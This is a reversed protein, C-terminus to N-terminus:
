SALVLCANSTCPILVPLAQVMCLTHPPSFSQGPKKRPATNQSMTHEKHCMKSVLNTGLHFTKYCRAFSIQNYEFKEYKETPGWKYSKLFNGLHCQENLHLHIQYVCSKKDCGGLCFSLFGRNMDYISSNIFGRLFQGHSYSKPFLRKAWAGSAM